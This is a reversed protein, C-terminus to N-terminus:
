PLTVWCSPKGSLRGGSIPKLQLGLTCLIDSSHVQWPQGVQREGVDWQKEGLVRSGCRQVPPCTWGGRGQGEPVELHTQM